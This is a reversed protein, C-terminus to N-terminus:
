PRRRFPVLPTDARLRLPHFPHGHFTQGLCEVPLGTAAVLTLVTSIRSLYHPGVLTGWAAVVRTAYELHAAIAEDNRPGVPDPHDYVRYPAPSQLAYLNVVDFAGLGWAETFGLCRRLTPDDHESNGVSPNFMVWLVSGREPAWRRWLAYRYPGDIVAGRDIGDGFLRPATAPM